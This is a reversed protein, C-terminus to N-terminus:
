YERATLRNFGLENTAGIIAQLEVTLSGDANRNGKFGGAIVEAPELSGIVREMPPLTILANANGASVIADALPSADALSQSTGDRGAYEDTILVTKIGKREIKTCNMILDTDPNGFGEESIIVGDVGLYEVLKATLDSSRQKDLLTVNENTIVCGVFCLDKGHRKLLDHIVPNNLHHYTTNKDCASVCNGSVIAGDMVETPHMFTPV